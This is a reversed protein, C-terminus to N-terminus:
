RVRARLRGRRCSRQGTAVGVQAEPKGRGAGARRGRSLEACSTESRRFLVPRPINRSGRSLDVNTRHGRRVQLKKGLELCEERKWTGLCSMGQEKAFSAHDTADNEPM